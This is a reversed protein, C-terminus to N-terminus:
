AARTSSCSPAARRPSCRASGCTTPCAPRCFGLYITAVDASTGLWDGLVLSATNSSNIRALESPSVSFNAVDDVGGIFMDCDAAHCNPHLWIVDDGSGGDTEILCGAHDWRFTAAELNILAGHGGSANRLRIGTSPSVCSLTNGSFVAFEAFGDPAREVIIPTSITINATAHRAELSVPLAGVWIDHAQASVFELNGDAGSTWIHVDGRLINLPAAGFSFSLTGDTSTVNNLVDIGNAGSVRVGQANGAM